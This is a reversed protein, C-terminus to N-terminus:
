KNVYNHSEFISPYLLSHLLYGTVEAGWDSLKGGKSCYKKLWNRVFEGLPVEKCTCNFSIIYKILHVIGNIVFHVM